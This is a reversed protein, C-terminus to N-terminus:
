RGISLYAGVTFGSFNLQTRDGSPFFLENEAQVDTTIYHQYGAQIGISSFYNSNALIYGLQVTSVFQFGKSRYAEKSDDPNVGEFVDDKFLHAWGYGTKLNILCEINKLGARNKWFNMQNIILSSNLGVNISQVEFMRKGPITDNPTFVDYQNLIIRIDRETRGFQYGGYVGFSIFQFPRYSVSLGFNYGETLSIRTLEDYISTDIYVPDNIRDNFENM